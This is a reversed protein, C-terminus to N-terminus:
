QSQQMQDIHIVNLRYFLVDSFVGAALDALLARDSGAVIRVRCDQPRTAESAHRSQETLLSLLRDQADPSL